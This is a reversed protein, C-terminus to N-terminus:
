DTLSQAKRVLTIFEARYGFEDDGLAGQAISLVQDYNANGKYESNRFLLGYEVVSSAFRFSESPTETYDTVLGIKEILKSTDDDPDKYRLSIHVYENEYNTGDYKLDEPIDFIQNEITESSNAPIIEYFAIMVHGAGLDGADKQDDEFDEYSLVRNEYGLLRYGKVNLPNFEVQLKVDKAVTVMSAGLENVFVKEAELISDIYYYVGNGNDALTEMVDDRLNGTGMGLVSLFVGTDRKSSILAKLEEVDSIGVNFDGDSALIIRNNGGEIFHDEAVQYALEIGQGGATSGGANLNALADIIEAKNTSDGGDLVLGAAGAYVVISICDSPRLQDVLLMISSKVLPLKNATGMSGSVDLLFVYNNGLTEEYVIDNTKLGIMLLQHDNNWPADSMETTISVVQGDEPDALDYNFYNIMEEIRVANAQPLYGQNIMRRVNAYSATDVDTSFTSVPMDATNIFENEIIEAYTEGDIPTYYEEGLQNEYPEYMYDASCSALTFLGILIFGFLIKKM